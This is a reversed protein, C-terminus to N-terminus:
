CFNEFKSEQPDATIVVKVATIVIEKNSLRVTIMGESVSTLPHLTFESNNVDHDGPTPHPWLLSFGYKCININFFFRRWFWCAFKL